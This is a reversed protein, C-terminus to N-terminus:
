TDTTEQRLKTEQPSNSTIDCTLSCRDCLVYHVVHTLLGLWADLGKGLCNCLPNLLAQALAVLRLLLLFLRERRHTAFVSNALM